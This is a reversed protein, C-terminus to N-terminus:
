PSQRLAPSLQVTLGCVWEGATREIPEEQADFSARWVPVQPFSMAGVLCSSLAFIKPGLPLLTPVNGVQLAARTRGDLHMVCEFPDTVKYRTATHENAGGLLSPNADIVSQYFRGDPGDPVYVAECSIEMSQLAGAAKHPEYGVGVFAVSALHTQLQGAFYSSVPGLSLVRDPLGSPPQFCAPVYLLDVTVTNDSLLGALAEVVAAIRKRNMSSVDIVIRANDHTTVIEELWRKCCHLFGGDWDRGIQFAHREFWELSRRYSPTRQDRFEVAVRSGGDSGDSRALACALAYSRPEYGVSTLLGDIPYGSQLESLKRAPWPSISVRRRDDSILPKMEMAAEGSADVAARTHPGAPELRPEPREGIVTAVVGEGSQGRVRRREADFAKSLPRAGGKRLLLNFIPAWMHSLRVQEYKTREARPEVVIAGLFILSNLVDELWPDSNDVRFVAAANPSFRAGHTEGYLHRGLQVLFEHPTVYQDRSPTGTLPRDVVHVGSREQINVAWLNNYLIWAVKAIERAQHAPLIPPHPADDDRGAGLRDALAKIWRPNGETLLYVNKAGTYLEPVEHTPLEDDGKEEIARRRALRLRVLPMARRVAHYQKSPPALREVADGALHQELWRDFDPDVAALRRVDRVDQTSLSGRKRTGAFGHGRLLKDVRRPALQRGDSAFQRAFLKATFDGERQHRLEVKHWDNLETGAFPNFGTYPALTIKYSLRADMSRVLEGIQHGASPPLFEFEDILLVWPAQLQGVARNFADIFYVTATAFDIDLLEDGFLERVREESLEPNAARRMLRGLEALNARMQEALGSFTSTAPHALCKPAIRGVLDEEHVRDLRVRNFGPKFDAQDDDRRCRYAATDAFAALAMYAFSARGFRRRHEWAVGLPRAMEQAGYHVNLSGALQELTGSWMKDAALFVGTFSIRSRAWEAESTSWHDLAEPLLMKLLTTKGIGRPGVILQPDTTALEFYSAPAVFDGAVQEPTSRRANYRSFAGKRPDLM